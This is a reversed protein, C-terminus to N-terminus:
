INYWLRLTRIFSTCPKGEKECHFSRTKRRKECPKKGVEDLCVNILFKYGLQRLYITYHRRIVTLLCRNTDKTDGGKKKRMKM